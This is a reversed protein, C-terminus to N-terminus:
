KILPHVVTRVSGWKLVAIKTDNPQEETSRIPFLEYIGDSISMQVERKFEAPNLYKTGINAQNFPSNVYVLIISGDSIHDHIWAM